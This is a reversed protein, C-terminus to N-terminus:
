ESWRGWCRWERNFSIRVPYHGAFSYYYERVLLYYPRNTRTSSWEFHPYARLHSIYVASLSIALPLLTPIGNSKKAPPTLRPNSPLPIGLGVSRRRHLLSAQPSPHVKYGLQISKPLPVKVYVPSLCEPKFEIANRGRWGL